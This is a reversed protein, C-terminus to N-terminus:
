DARDGGRSPTGGWRPDTVELEFAHAEAREHLMQELWAHDRQTSGIGMPVGCSLTGRDGREVRLVQRDGSGTAASWDLHVNSVEAWDVPTPRFGTPLSLGADSVTLRQQSQFAASAGNVLGLALLLLGQLTEAILLWRPFARFRAAEVTNDGGAIAGLLHGRPGRMRTSALNSPCEALRSLVGPDAVEDYNGAEAKPGRVEPWCGVSVPAM